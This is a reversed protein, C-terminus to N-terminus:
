EPVRKEISNWSCLVCIPMLFTTLLILWLSIGDIGLHYDIKYGAFWPAKEVFQFDASAGDFGILLMLSLLFIGVTSILAVWRAANAGTVENRGSFYTVVAAVLPLVILSTLLHSM